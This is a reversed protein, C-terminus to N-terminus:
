KIEGERYIKDFQEIHKGLIEIAEAEKEAIGDYRNLLLFIPAFFQLAMIKPDAKRMYGQKIMEEFIQAQNSIATDIYVERYIRDIEKSKYKEISLMKRFQSAYPDKLYFEEKFCEWPTSFVRARYYVEDAHIEHVAYKQIRKLEDLIQSKPFYRNNYKIETEFERWQRETQHFLFLLLMMWKNNEDM